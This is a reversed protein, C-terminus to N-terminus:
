GDIHTRLATILPEPDPRPPAPVRDAIGPLADLLAPIEGFGKFELVGPVNHYSRAAHGNAIVPVGAILMETIRTLAGSGNEQYCLCASARTLLEDHTENSLEGLFEIGPGFSESSYHRDTNYGAVMLTGARDAMRLEAWAGAVRDISAKTQMNGANALMLIGQTRSTKRSERVRTLRDLIPRVPYYPLYICPIRLNTLLWTEEKSITIVAASRGLINLEDSLLQTATEEMVQAPALSEINHCVTIVPVALATLKEFLPQFYIPDDVLAIQLAGPTHHSWLSSTERLHHVPMRREPAWPGYRLAAESPNNKMHAMSSNLATIDGPSLSRRDTSSALRVDLGADELLELIQMLRRSGGGRDITPIFRTYFQIINNDM